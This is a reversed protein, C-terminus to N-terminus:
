LPRRGAALVDLTRDTAALALAYIGFDHPTLLRALVLGIGFSAMRTVLIGILSWRLGRGAKRAISGEHASELVANDQM